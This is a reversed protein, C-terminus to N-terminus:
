AGCVSQLINKAIEGAPEWGAFKSGCARGGDTLDKM